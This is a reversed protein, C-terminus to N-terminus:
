TYLPGFHTTDHAHSNISNHETGQLDFANDHTSGLEHCLVQQLAVKNIDFGVHVVRCNFGSGERSLNTVCATTESLLSEKRFSALCHATISIPLHIRHDATDSRLGTKFKLRVTVRTVSINRPKGCDRWASTYILSTLYM